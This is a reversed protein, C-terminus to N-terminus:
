SEPADRELLEVVDAFKKHRAIMAATEGLRNRASVRAGAALLIGLCEINREGAAQMLATWGDNDPANVDSGALLLLRLTETDGMHIAFRLATWGNQSRANIQTGRHELLARVIDTHGKIAALMLPTWGELTQANVDAGVALCARVQSLRGDQAARLLSQRPDAGYASSLTAQPEDEARLKKLLSVVEGHGNMGARLLATMGVQNKAKVSAGASVLWRVVGLHGGAAAYILATNGFHDKENVDVGEELLSQVLRLDGASAAALFDLATESYRGPPADFSAKIDTPKQM